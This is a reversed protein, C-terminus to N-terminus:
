GRLIQLLEEITPPRGIQGGSYYQLKNLIEDDENKLTPAFISEGGIDYLYDIDTLEGPKVQVARMPTATPASIGAESTDKSSKGSTDIAATPTQIISSPPTDVVAPPATEIVKAPTEIVSSTPTELVSQGATEWRSNVESTPLNLVSAIDEPTVGAAEASARIEKDSSKGRIIQMVKEYLGPDVAVSKGEASDGTSAPPSTGSTGATGATPSPAAAGSDKFVSELIDSVAGAPYGTIDEITQQVVDMTTTEGGETQGLIKRITADVSPIGTSVGTYVKEGIKGTYVAPASGPANKITGGGWDVNGTIGGPGLVIGALSSPDGFIDGVTDVVDKGYDVPSALQNTVTSYASPDQIFRGLTDGISQQSLAAADAGPMGALEPASELLDSMAEPSYLSSPDFGADILSKEALRYQERLKAREAENLAQGKQLLGAINLFVGIPGLFSMPGTQQSINGLVEWDSGPIRAM